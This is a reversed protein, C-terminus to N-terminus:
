CSKDSSTSGSLRNSITNTLNRWQLTVRKLRMKEYQVRQFSTVTYLGCKLPPSSHRGGQPYTHFFKFNEQTLSNDTIRM